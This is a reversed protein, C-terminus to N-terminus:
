SPGLLRILGKLAKSLGKLAKYLVELVKYLGLSKSEKPELLTYPGILPKMPSYAAILSGIGYLAGLAM